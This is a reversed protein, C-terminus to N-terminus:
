LNLAKLYGEVMPELGFAEEARKRAAARFREQNNIIINAAEALGNIDPSDLQWPDGGYAVLKGADMTVIEALAGTDFAVVPLGCALAEIVSNPCAANLDAAYLVHASRDLEPVKEAPVEGSFRVQVEPNGKWLRQLSASVRGVVMVELKHGYVSKVSEAMLIATELGWEYGGAISGEVLLIRVQEDPIKGVGYPTYRELDVGNLVVRWAMNSIGYVREWWQHSFESQYVIENALRSRISSLIINGYEARLYHRWGTRRRRHIWNMGDLRQVIRVGRRRARWLGPLDRTGGIVLIADYPPDELDYAVGIGREALGKVLKGRFSVMGGVGSVNPILCVKSKRNTIGM